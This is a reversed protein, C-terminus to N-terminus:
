ALAARGFQKVGAACHTGGFALAPSEVVAQDICSRELGIRELHRRTDDRPWGERVADGLRLEVLFPRHAEVLRDLRFRLRLRDAHLRAVELAGVLREHGLFLRHELPISSPAKRPSTPPVAGGETRGSM